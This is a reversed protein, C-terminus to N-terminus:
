LKLYTQGKSDPTYNDFSKQVGFRKMDEFYKKPDKVFYKVIDEEKGKFNYKIYLDSLWKADEKAKKKMDGYFYEKQWNTDYNTRARDFVKIRLVQKEMPDLEKIFDNVKNNETIYERFTSM